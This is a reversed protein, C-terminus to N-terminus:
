LRDIKKVMSNVSEKLDTVEQQLVKIAINTDDVKDFRSELSEISKTHESVDHTVSAYIVGAMVAGTVISFLVSLSIRYLTSDKVIM